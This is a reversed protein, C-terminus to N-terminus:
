MPLQERLWAALLTAVKEPQEYAAFHGADSLLHYECGGPAARLAEMEAPTVAGDEGGAIALVPVDITAVTPISDPRAALGAQVAILAEPTITM